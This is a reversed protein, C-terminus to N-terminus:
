ANEKKKFLNKLFVLAAAGGAVLLKWLGKFMGSKTAAAAVGGVVLASLGYKAVKDGQRYEAYRYGQKYAFGSEINRFKQLAEQFREPSAMLTVKMYGHRGLLRTNFNVVERNESSVRLAWELNNTKENYYPPLEWGIIHVERWGRKRKEENGRKNGEKISSLMADADLSGKEDDKVYGADDYRFIMALEGSAGVLFGVEDGNAINQSAEMITKMDAKGAFVHGEPVRVEAVSGLDVNCPGEQWNVKALPSDEGETGAIGSNLFLSAMVVVSLSVFLVSRIRRRM